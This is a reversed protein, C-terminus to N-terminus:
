RGCVLAASRGTVEFRCGNGSLAVHHPSGEANTSFRLEGSRAGPISPLFGVDIRCSQSPALTGTCGNATVRFDGTAEMLPGFVLDASGANTVTVFLTSGVGALGNGFALSSASLQVRPAPVPVGNGSLAVAFPATAGDVEFLVQGARTGVATPSFSALFACSEGPRVDACTGSVTFDGTTTIRSVSAVASGVNTLAFPRSASTTGVIQDGFSLTSPIAALRGVPAATASGTLRLFAAGAPSNTMIRVDAAFSGASPPAFIATITCSAGMALSPGCAHTMTFGTGVIEVALIALPASGSNSLTASLPASVQGSATSPFALTPPSLTANPSVAAVGDGELVVTASPMGPDNSAIALSGTRMGPLIPTFTVTIGCTALPALPSLSTCDSAAAFDGSASVGSIALPATGANSVTVPQALSTTGVTQGPFFLASTSLSIAPVPVATGQGTLNLVANGADSVVSFTGNRTGTAAPTFVLTATCASLPDPPAPLSAGCTTSAQSFDGTLAFPGSFALPANGTNSVTVAQPASPAGVTSSGFDLPGPPSPVLTLVGAPATTVTLTVPSIAPAANGVPAAFVLGSITGAPLTAPYAGPTASTVDVAIACTGGTPVVLGTVSFLAAGPAAAVAGSCSAGVVAANAPSAVTLGSPLGYGFTAASFDGLNPNTVSLSFTAPANPAITAPTFTIATPLPTAGGVTLTGSAALTSVGAAITEVSTVGGAPITNVLSGVQTGIVAVSVSCTSATTAKGRASPPGLGAPVTGGSLALSTAGAPATATGGCTNTIAPTPAVQLGPPFGNTFGLGTLPFDNLSSITVTLTSLAGVAASPPTFSVAVDPALTALGLGALNIVLTGATTTVTLTGTRLGPATPHFTVTALCCSQSGLPPPGLPCDTSVLFEPSSSVISTIELTSGDTGGNALSIEYPVGDTNVITPALTVTGPESALIAAPMTDLVIAEVTAYYSANGGNIWISDFFPQLNVTARSLNVTFSCSAGAALPTACTGSDVTIDASFPTFLLGSQSGVTGTNTVTAVLSAPVGKLGTPFQIVAVSLVAGPDIVDGSLGVSTNGGDTLLLASSNYVGVPASTADLLFALLCSAGPALPSAAVCASADAVFPAAPPAQFGTVSHPVTDVNTATVFYTYSTSGLSWGGFFLSTSDLQVGAGASVGTGAVDVYRYDFLTGDNYYLYLYSYYVGAGTPTFTIDLDCTAGPSMAMPFSTGPCGAGVQVTFAGNSPPFMDLTLAQSHNNALSVTRVVPTGTVGFDIYDTSVGLVGEGVPAQVPVTAFPSVPDNSIVDLAGDVISNAGFQSDAYFSVEVSCSGGPAIPAGICTNPDALTIIQSCDCPPDRTIIDSVVLPANGANQITVTAPASQTERLATPLVVPDPSVVLVPAPVTCVGAKAAPLRVGVVKSMPVAAPRAPRAAGEAAAPLLVLLAAVAALFKSLGLKADM